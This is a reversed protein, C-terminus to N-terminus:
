EITLIKRSEMYEIVDVMRYRVSRKGVKFYPIGRRDWRQNRLTSLAFGTIESVEKEKLYRNQTEM